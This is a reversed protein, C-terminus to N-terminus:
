PQPDIYGLPKSDKTFEYEEVECHKMVPNFIFQNFVYGHAVVIVTEYKGIYKELCAFARKGIEDFEEWKQFISRRKGNNRKMEQHIKGFKIRKKKYTLDPSWEHLDNEVIINLGTNKSIIAATQLARTFPSSIIVEADKFRPDKSVETAQKVGLETLPAMDVGMGIQGRMLPITYDPEGHRVLYLKM